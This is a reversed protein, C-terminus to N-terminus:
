DNKNIPNPMYIMTKFCFTKSIMDFRVDSYLKSKEVFNLTGSIKERECLDCSVTQKERYLGFM